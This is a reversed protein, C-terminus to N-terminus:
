AVVMADLKEWNVTLFSIPAQGCALAKILEELDFVEAQLNAPVATTTAPKSASQIPSSVRVPAPSAVTAPEVPANAQAEDAIRKPEEQRIQERPAEAKQEEAKQHESIRVKILAVLDDNAKMVLQQFDNFLCMYDDALEDLTALNRRISDGVQSAAIKARALESDASDRLSSITKKGKIAGAFDAPVAPMRAKGGLSANIQDIHVQLAKAADMVIDERISLKRAKVLKDLM